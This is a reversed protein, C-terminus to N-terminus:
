QVTKIGFEYSQDAALGVFMERIILGLFPLQVAVIRGRRPCAQM